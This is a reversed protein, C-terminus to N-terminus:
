SLTIVASLIAVTLATSSAIMVGLRNTLRLELNKIEARLTSEVEKLDSKTAISQLVIDGLAEAQVASM